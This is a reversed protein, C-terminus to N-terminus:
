LKSMNAGLDLMIEYSGGGVVAVRVERSIREVLKGKGGRVYSAGGLIQSAERCCYEMASTCQVKALAMPGGIEQATAGQAMTFALNDVVVQAAEVRLAMEAIKHRIVQSKILKKGFTERERAFKIAESLCTRAARVSSQCAILREGNMVTAMVMFGMGEQGVLNEVPVLVDEFDVFTTNGAWWGTTPIKRVNVGKLNRPIVVISLNGHGRKPAVDESEVNRVLTSFYDVCLGGTIFKKQGNIRYYDKGGQTVRVATTRIGALDSGGLPETLTIAMGAEGRIIPKAIDEIQQPSGFHLIHPLSMYTIFFLIAVGGSGCRSLEDTWILMKFPDWHPQGGLHSPAWPCWLGAAAASRRLSAIPCLGAEDWQDAHPLLHAEVYQRCQARFSVHDASYFPTPVGRYWAPEAYPTDDGYPEHRM